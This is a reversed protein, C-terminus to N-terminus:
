QKQSLFCCQLIRAACAQLNELKVEGKEVGEIIDNINEVCGPMQLDNGANICEKSSSNEYRLNPRAYNYSSKMSTCWDTM